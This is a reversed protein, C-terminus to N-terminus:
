KLKDNNEITEVDFVNKGYNNNLEDKVITFLNLPTIEYFMEEDIEINFETPIGLLEIPHYGKEFLDRSRFTKLKIQIHTVGIRFRSEFKVIAGIDVSSGDTATLGSITIIDVIKM